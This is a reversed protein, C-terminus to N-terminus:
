GIEINGFNDITNVQGQIINPGVASATTSRLQNQMYNISLSGTAAELAHANINAVVVNVSNMLVGIEGASTREVRIGLSVNTDTRTVLITNTIIASTGGSLSINIGTGNVTSITNNEVRTLGSTINGIIIGSSGSSSITNNLIANGGSASLLVIVSGGVSVMTSSEIIVNSSNNGVVCNGGFSLLQCNKIRISNEVLLGLLSNIQSNFAVLDNCNIGFGNNSQIIVDYINLQDCDISDDDSTITIGSLSFRSGNIAVGLSRIIVSGTLELTDDCYIVSGTSNILEVGIMKIRAGVGLVSLVLSDTLSNSGGTREIIGNYISCRVGATASLANSNSPSDFTYTYGNFNIDVGDKLVVENVTEKFDAFTQITDGAVAANMADFLSSYYTFEGDADSIGFRGFQVPTPTPPPTPTSCCSDDIINLDGDIIATGDLNLAFLNYEFNIPIDLVEPVDITQQAGSIFEGDVTVGRVNAIGTAGAAGQPGIDGQPGTAGTAGQPGIDGQPGTTGAAGTSGQPGIDGQPGTPGSIGTTGTPGTAGKVGDAKFISIATVNQVLTYTPGSSLSRGRLRIQTNENVVDFVLSKSITILEGDTGTSAMGNFSGNFQPFISQWIPSSPTGTNVQVEVEFDQDGSINSTERIGISYSLVYRGEDVITIIHSDISTNHIYQPDIIPANNFPINVWGSDGVFNITTNDYFLTIADLNIPDSTEGQPGQPGPLGEDGIPGIPGQPGTPGPDGFIGPFGQPGIDGTPGIDGQFGQLGQYGQPGQFGQPGTAGTTGTAGSSVLSSIIVDGGLTSVAMGQGPVISRFTLDAGSMGAFIQAASPGLDGINVGQSSVASGSAGIIVSDGVTQITVNPGAQLRRFRLDDGSMGAYVDSGSGINVGQNDKGTSTITILNNTQTGSIGAGFQLRKFTLDNGSMGAYIEARNSASTSLNLGQNAVGLNPVDIIINSATETITLNSSGPVLTRFQLTQGTAGVSGAFISSGGGINDGNVVISSYDLSIDIENTSTSIVTNIGSLGRISRFQFQSGVTTKYVGSGIGVNTATMSVGSAGTAGGLLPVLRNLSIDTSISSSDSVFTNKSLYLTNSTNEIVFQGPFYLRNPNYATVEKVVTRLMESPTLSFKPYYDGFDSVTLPWLEYGSAGPYLLATGLLISDLPPVPFDETYAVKDYLAQSGIGDTGTLSTYVIDLLPGSPGTAFSAQAYVFLLEPFPFNINPPFYIDTGPAGASQYFHTVGNIVARGSTVTLKNVGSTDKRLELGYLILNERNLEIINLGDTTYLKGNSFQIALEGPYVDTNLWNDEVHNTGPLPVTARSPVVKEIRRVFNEVLSGM